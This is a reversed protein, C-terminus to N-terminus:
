RSSVVLAVGAVTLGAGALLPLTVQEGLVVAALLVAVLPSAAILAAARSAGLIRTARLNLQRGGVFNVVGLGGFWLLAAPTLRGFGGPDLLLTLVVIAPLLTGLSILTALAPPVDRLGQRAMIADLGWGCAALLALGIGLVGV